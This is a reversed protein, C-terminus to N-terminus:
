CVMASLVQKCHMRSVHMRQSDPSRPRVHQSTGLLTTLGQWRHASPGPTLLLQFFVIQHPPLSRGHPCLADHALQTATDVTSSAVTRNTQAAFAYAHTSVAESVCTHAQTSTLPENIQMHLLVHNMTM